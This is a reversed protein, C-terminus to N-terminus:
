LLRSSKVAAWGLYLEGAGTEVVPRKMLAPHAALLADPAAEREAVSLGRWTTSRTNVLADGFADLFRARTADDLPTERVDVLVADHGAEALARIATRCTDCNRLGYVTVADSV